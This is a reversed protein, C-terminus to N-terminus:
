SKQLIMRVLLGGMPSKEASVKGGCARVSSEVIAMGLGTGGTDRTYVYRWRVPPWRGSPVLEPPRRVLKPPRINTRRLPHEHLHSIYDRMVGEKGLIIRLKGLPVTLNTIM